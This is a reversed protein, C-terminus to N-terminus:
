IENQENLLNVFLYEMEIYIHPHMPILLDYGLIKNFVLLRKVKKKTAKHINTVILENGFNLNSFLLKCLSQYIFTFIYKTLSFMLNNSIPFQVIPRLTISSIDKSNNIVRMLKFNKHMNQHFDIRDPLGNLDKFSKFQRLLECNLEKSSKGSLIYFEAFDFHLNNDCKSLNKAFCKNKDNRMHSVATRFILSSSLKSLYNLSVKISSNTFENLGYDDYNFYYKNKM